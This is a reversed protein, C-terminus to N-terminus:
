REVIALRRNITTPKLSHELQQAVFRDIDRFTVQEPPRDGVIKVFLRLDCTYDKWTRTGPSRRRVWNVFHEIEVLM